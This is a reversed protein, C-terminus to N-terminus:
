KTAASLHRIEKFMELPGDVACIKVNLHQELEEKKMNDLFLDSEDKLLSKSIFVAEGANMGRLAWLLDSGTLLGSVNISSGFYINEAFVTKITLKDLQSFCSVLRNVLSNAAKGAVVTVTLKKEILPMEQKSILDLENLFQRALGVGNELQPYGEYHEDDPFDVGAMEYFEDALYVFRSKRTKLHKVQLDTIRSILAKAEEPFFKRLSTLGSRHATLGVPVLAIDTLNPGLRDLDKISREMEPGTNYGPCLVIQAHIKIGSGTLRKLIKLGSDAYKRQFMANRIDPSTSHVSVYLPSLQLRIIREVDFGTLRNLTIFNGFLFSLRYDDDKVYLAPRLGPPNQDIFCFICNNGCRKLKSITPPDFRLGLDSGATKYVRIRRILGRGTLLLLILKEDAEKIRYDIIDAIPENNIRLLRWGPEIGKKAAPSGPSVKEILCGSVNNM